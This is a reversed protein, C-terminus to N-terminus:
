RSSLALRFGLRYFCFKPRDHRRFTKSARPAKSCWSGGRSVRYRGLAPGPPNFTPSQRYYEESYRDQCWEWVNGQMDYIGFANPRKGAVPHTTGGSNDEFWAVADLDDVNEGGGGTRCAYEWEAESPLRYHLGTKHSLWKCFVQADDWSVLVVPHRDTQPLYPNKWSADRRYAEKRKGSIRIQGGGGHEAQSIYGSDRVFLRWQGVTVETKGLFFRNIRVCHRPREPLPGDDTGMLFEGAPIEAMEINPIYIGAKGKGPNLKIFMFLMSGLFLIIGLFLLIHRLPPRHASRILKNKAPMKKDTHIMM